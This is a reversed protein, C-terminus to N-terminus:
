VRIKQKRIEGAENEKKTEKRGEKSIRKLTCEDDV